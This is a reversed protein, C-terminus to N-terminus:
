QAECLHNIFRLGCPDATKLRRQREATADVRPFRPSGDAGVRGATSFRRDKIGGEVVKALSLLYSLVMM